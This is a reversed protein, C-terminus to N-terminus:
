NVRHVEPHQCKVKGSGPTWRPRFGTVAPFAPHSEIYCPMSPVPKISDMSLITRLVTSCVYTYVRDSLRLSHLSLLSREMIM